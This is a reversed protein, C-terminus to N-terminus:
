KVLKPRLIKTQKVGRFEGHEKITAKVTVTDGVRLAREASDCAPDFDPADNPVYIASSSMWCVVDGDPTRFSYACSPGRYGDFWTKRELTLTLTMRQKLAGVHQSPRRIECAISQVAAAQKPTLEGLKELRDAMEAVFTNAKGVELDEQLGPHTALFETRKQAVIADRAAAAAELEALTPRGYRVAACDYSLNDSIKSACDIGLVLSEVTETASTLVCHYEYRLSMGCKDCKGTRCQLDAFGTCKWSLDSAPPNTAPTTNMNM